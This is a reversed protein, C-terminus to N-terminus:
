ISEAWAQVAAIVRDPESATAHVVLELYKPDRIDLSALPHERLRVVLYGAALLDLSKDTDIDTKDAHWYSGDYEVAVPVGATTTTTIDILWRGRRAFAENTVAQGSAAHGFLRVAAEHHALEVKSKGVERCEPCGSGAARSALSATWTHNPNTSCVWLPDFATKGSPRVQWATLPNSPSWEDGLEPFHYALSDLITRCVPCRLRQFKERRGPTEQWEHGCEWNKWWVVKRSTPSMKEVKLPHNKTAHWQSAIERNMTHAEPNAEVAALRAARTANGRCSPCGSKLFTLPSLSPHHGMPCRFKYTWHDGVMVTAPDADDAWAALLEPVATIPTVKYQAFEAEWAARKKPACDLCERWKVMEAVKATFSLGCEPCLWHAERTARITVTDWAVVDNRDHDWWELVPLKSDKLLDRKAAGPKPGPKGPGAVNTTQVARRANSQCPCGFTIDGRRKAQIRGCYLCRVRHPDSALSPDTLPELYEYGHTSALERTDEIPVPTLNVFRGHDALEEAAWERFYCARCTPENASNRDLVYEFLYHAECGCTLCRTLRYATVKTFPELPELGAVHLIATVHEDCWAPKTRTRYAAPASCGEQACQKVETTVALSAAM